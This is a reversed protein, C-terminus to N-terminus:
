FGGGNNMYWDSIEFHFDKESIDKDVRIFSYPRATGSGDFVEIVGAERDLKFRYSNINAEM